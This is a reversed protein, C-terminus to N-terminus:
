FQIKLGANNLARAVLYQAGDDEVTNTNRKIQVANKGLTILKIRYLCNLPSPQDDLGGKSRIHGFHSELCDQNIHKTLIYKCDYKEKMAEFMLQLSKTSMIIGKQFVQMTSKTCPIMTRVLQAMRELAANQQDIHIGYPKKLLLTEATTRSNMVDFWDNVIEIFEALNTSEKDTPFYRKLATASTHSLLQAAMAVNQRM